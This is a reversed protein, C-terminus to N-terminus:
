RAVGRRFLAKSNDGDRELALSANDVAERWLECRLCAAAMNLHLSLLVGGAEAEGKHRALCAIARGYSGHAEKNRHSKFHENGEAKMEGAREISETLDLGAWEDAEDEGCPNPLENEDTSAKSDDSDDSCAHPPPPAPNASADSSQMADTYGM